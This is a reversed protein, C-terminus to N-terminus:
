RLERWWQIDGAIGGQVIDVGPVTWLYAQSGEGIGSKSVVVKNGSLAFGSAAGEGADIVRITPTYGTAGLSTPDFSVMILWATGGCGRDPDYALFLATPRVTSGAGEDPILIAPPATIQTKRGLATTGIVVNSKGPDPCFSTGVLSKLTTSWLLESSGDLKRAGIFVRPIFNGTTGVTAAGNINDSNEYFSGSALVYIDWEPNAVPFGVVAPPYYLPHDAGIRGSFLEQGGSTLPDLGWLRGNLDGQVTQTVLNDPQFYKASKQFSVTDAFAQTRVFAGSAVQVGLSYTQLPQPNGATSGGTVANFRLVKPQFTAAGAPYSWDVFGSGVSVVWETISTAGVSPMSWTQGLDPVAGVVPSGWGTASVSWLIEVPATSDYNRDTGYSMATTAPTPTPTPTAAPTPTPGPTATPKCTPTVSPVPTATGTPAPTPTYSGSPKPVTSRGPFPHSVDVAYLARGGPGETVYLVTRYAKLVPDYVDAVRPSSAVGFIHDHRDYSKLQGTATTSEALAFNNYLSVQKVLLSPPLLAIIEAGDVVDFAHLMGDSSGVWVLPHRGAGDESSLNVKYALEFQTHDQVTNQGFHEPSGVVAPTSNLIPGLLWTRQAGMTVDPLSIQGDNGRIFDVVRDTIGCACIVNLAAAVVDPSAELSPNSKGELIWVLNNGDAPDWTAIRRKLGNNAKNALVDGADWLTVHYPRIPLSADDRLDYAYFNGRWTPFDSAPVFGVNGTTASQNSISPSSTTYNGKGFSSIISKFAAVLSAPNNAFFAYPMDPDYRTADTDIEPLRYVKTGSVTVYDRSRDVGADGFPSSADTRGKYATFNLECSSAADTVTDSVGVVFTRIPHSSWNWLNQAIGAPYYKYEDADGYYSPCRDWEKDEGSYDDVSDNCTNSQGDTVLMVGYVRGCEEQLDNALTTPFADNDLVRSLGKRTPTGGSPRLGAPGSAPRAQQTGAASITYNASLYLLINAVQADNSNTNITVRLNQQECGGGSDQFTVLGWNVLKKNSEVLKGPELTSVLGPVPPMTRDTYNEWRNNDWDFHAKDTPATTGPFSYYTKDYEDTTTTTGTPLEPLSLPQYLVMHADSGLANKVIAMRSAPVWYWRYVGFVEDWYGKQISATASTSATFTKYNSSSCTPYTNDTKKKVVYVYKWGSWSPNAAPASCVKYIGEDSSSPTGTIRVISGAVVDYTSDTLWTVRKKWNSDGAKYKLQFQKVAPWIGHFEWTSAGIGLKVWYGHGVGWLPKYSTRQESFDSLISAYNSSADESHFRWRATYGGGSTDYSDVAGSGQYDFTMPFTMSGSSDFVIMLNSPLIQTTIQRFPDFGETSPTITQGGAPSAAALVVLAVAGTGSCLRACARNM